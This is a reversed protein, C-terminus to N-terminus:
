HLTCSTSSSNEMGRRGQTSEHGQIALDLMGTTELCQFTRKYAKYIM